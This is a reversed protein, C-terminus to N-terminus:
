LKHLLQFTSRDVLSLCLLNIYLYIYPLYFMGSIYEDVNLTLAAGHGHMDTCTLACICRTRAIMARVARVHWPCKRKGTYAPNPIVIERDDTSNSTEALHRLFPNLIFDQAFPTLSYAQKFNETIVLHTVSPTAQLVPLLTSFSFTQPIVSIHLYRLTCASRQLFRIFSAAPYEDPIEIITSSFCFRVLNRAVIASLFVGLTSFIVSNIDLYLLRSLTISPSAQPLEHSDIEMNAVSFSEILPVLLQMLKICESTDLADLDVHTTSSWNINVRKLNLARLVVRQPAPATHKFLVHLNMSDIPDIPYTYVWSPRLDLTRITPLDIPHELLYLIFQFPLRLYIDYWQKSCRAITTLLPRYTATFSDNPAWGLPIGFVDCPIEFHITLPNKKARAIWQEVIEPETELDNKVGRHSIVLQTWLQSTSWAIQRWSQSVAGITISMFVDSRRSSDTKRGEVNNSLCQLFIHSILESPLKHFVSEAYEQGLTDM